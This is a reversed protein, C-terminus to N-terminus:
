PKGHTEPHQPAPRVKIRQAIERAVAYRSDGAAIVLNPDRPDNKIVHVRAGKFLGMELTKRNPNSVIVWDADQTCAALDTGSAEPRNAARRPEHGTEKHSPPPSKPTKDM